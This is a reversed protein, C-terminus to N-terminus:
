AKTYVAGMLGPSTAQLRLQQLHTSDAPETPALATRDAVPCDYLRRSPRSLARGAVGLRLLPQSRARQAARPTGAGRARARAAAGHAHASARVRATRGHADPGVSRRKAM